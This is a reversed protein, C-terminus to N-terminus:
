VVLMWLCHVMWFCVTMVQFNANAIRYLIISYLRGYISSIGIENRTLDEKHGTRNKTHKCTQLNFFWHSFNSFFWSKYEILPICSLGNVICLIWISCQSYEYSSAMKNWSSKWSLYFILFILILNFMSPWMSHVKESLIPLLQEFVSKQVFFFVSKKNWISNNM